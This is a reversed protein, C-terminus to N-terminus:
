HARARARAVGYAILTGVALIVILLILNVGYQQLLMAKAPPQSLQRLVLPVAIVTVAGVMILWAQVFGRARDPIRHLAAGVALLAPQLVGHHVLLAVLLWAGLVLLTAVPLGLLLRGAGYGLAVVGVVGLAIRLGTV